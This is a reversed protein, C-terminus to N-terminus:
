IAICTTISHPHDALCFIGKGTKARFWVFAQARSRRRSRFHIFSHSLFNSSPVSLLCNAVPSASRCNATSVPCCFLGIPMLYLGPATLSSWDLHISMGLLKTSIESSIWALTLRCICLSHLTDCSFSRANSNVWAWITRKNKTREEWESSQIEQQWSSIHSVGIPVM